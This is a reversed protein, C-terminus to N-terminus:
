LLSSKLAGSEAGVLPWSPSPYPRMVTNRLLLTLPLPPLLPEPQTYPSVTKGFPYHPLPAPQESLKSGWSSWSTLIGFSARSQSCLQVIFRCSLCKECNYLAFDNENLALLNSILLKAVLPCLKKKVNNNNSGVLKSVQWEFKQLSFLKDFKKRAANIINM